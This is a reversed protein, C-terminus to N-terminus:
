DRLAVAWNARIVLGDGVGSVIPYALVIEFRATAEADGRSAAFTGGFQHAFPGSFELATPRQM